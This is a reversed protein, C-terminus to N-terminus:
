PCALASNRVDLDTFYRKTDGFQISADARFTCRNFLIYVNRSPQKPDPGLDRGEIKCSDITMSMTGTLTVGKRCDYFEYQATPGGTWAARLIAGTSEDVAIINYVKVTFSFESINGAADTARGTVLTSGAPFVSGSPPQLLVNVGPCNDTVVPNLNVVTSLTGPAALVLVNPATVKPKETDKVTVTFSARTVNQSTDTATCNVTTVGKEFTSGSPPSCVVSVGPCNDTSKPSFSVTASCKGPDTPLTINVPAPAFVPREDDVVTVSFSTPNSKNGKNDTATCTVPTVGKPFVSRSPPVCTVSAIGSCSDSAEPTPLNVTQSCQGPATSVTMDAVADITPPENDTFAQTGDFLRATALDGLSLEPNFAVQGFPGFNAAATASISADIGVDLTEHFKLCTPSIEPEFEGNIFGGAKAGVSVEAIGLSM